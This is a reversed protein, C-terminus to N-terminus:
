AFGIKSIADQWYEEESEEDIMILGEYALLLEGWLLGFVDFVLRDLGHLHIADGDNGRWFVLPSRIHRPQSLLIHEAYGTLADSARLRSVQNWTLSVTQELDMKQELGFLIIAPCPRPMKEFGRCLQGATLVVKERKVM